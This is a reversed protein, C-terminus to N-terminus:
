PRTGFLFNRVACVARTLIGAGPYAPAKMMLEGDYYVGARICWQQADSADVASVEGGYKTGGIYRTFLFVKPESM